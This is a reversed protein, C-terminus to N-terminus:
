QQAAFKRAMLIQAQQKDERGKGSGSGSGRVLRASGAEEDGEDDRSDADDKSGTPYGMDQANVWRDVVGFSCDLEVGLNFDKGTGERYRSTVLRMFGTEGGPSEGQRLRQNLLIGDYPHQCCVRGGRSDEGDGGMPPSQGFHCSNRVIWFEIGDETGWGVVSIVHNSQPDRRHESYVGGTYADMAATAEISCAIPGRRFIEAKMDSRGSVRGHESVILRKYDYIAVCGEGGPWCTFCQQKSHCQGNRATYVNCTEPPIGHTAAYQFALKEDGGDCSGAGACDVINQVSLSASPWVGGRLINSRDALSSSAAHAWCSGCYVPIHQNRTASLFNTGSPGINRWDWEQPLETENLTLHPRPTTIQETYTDSRTLEVAARSPGSYQLDVIAAFVGHQAALISLLVSM